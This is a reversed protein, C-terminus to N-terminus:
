WVVPRYAVASSASSQSALSSAPLFAARGFHRAQPPRLGSQQVYGTEMLKQNRLAPIGGLAGDLCNPLAYFRQALVRFDAARDFLHRRFEALPDNFESTAGIDSQIMVVPVLDHYQRDAVSAFGSVSSKKGSYIAAQRLNRCGGSNWRWCRRRANWEGAIAAWAAM